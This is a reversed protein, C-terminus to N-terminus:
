RLLDRTKDTICNEFIENKIKRLESFNKYLSEHSNEINLEQFVDIDLIFPLTQSTVPEITETIIVNRYQDITPVQIQMFFNSFTQPLCAPIPPTNQIYEQFSALPLPLDIRNIFRTAIRLIKNPNFQNSYENWYKMFVDFHNDWNQYPKLINLTFGDIRVQLQRTNDESIFIFGTLDSHTKSELPNDVSFQFMGTINHRKKEIPFDKLILEKMNLLDNVDSINLRDVRIDFIAEKIPANSYIM